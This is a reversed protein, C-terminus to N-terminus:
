SVVEWLDDLKFNSPFYDLIEGEGVLNTDLASGLLTVTKNGLYERFLESMARRPKTTGAKTSFFPKEFGTNSYGSSEVIGLEKLRIGLMQSSVRFASRLITRTARPSAKLSQEFDLRSALERVWEEPVMTEAAIRNMRAEVQNAEIRTDCLYGGSRRHSLHALEHVLTFIRATSRDQTSLAVAPPGGDDWRAMGRLVDIDFPLTFVFVGCQSVRETWETIAHAEDRWSAQAEATVGLTTRIDDALQKTSRGTASPLRTMESEGLRAQLETVMEYFNNFQHIHRQDTYSLDRPIGGPPARFDELPEELSEDKFLAAFPFMTAKTFAYSEGWTMGRSGSEWLEIDTQTITSQKMRRLYPNVKSVLEERTLSVRERAFLVASPVIDLQSSFM